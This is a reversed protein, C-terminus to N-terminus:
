INRLRAVARWAGPLIGAAIATKVLEGPLFPLLGAVIAAKMSGLYLALWPVGLVFVVSQGALFILWSTKLKRDGGREALWGTVYAAPVFGLLYGATPGLAVAPALVPMGLAGELLYLALSM